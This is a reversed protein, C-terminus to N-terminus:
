TAHGGSFPVDYPLRHLDGSFSGVLMVGLNAYLHPELSPRFAALEEVVQAARALELHLRWMPENGVRLVDSVWMARSLQPGFEAEM